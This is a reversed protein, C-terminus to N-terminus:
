QRDGEQDVVVIGDDHCEGCYACRYGEVYERSHMHDPSLPCLGPTIAMM